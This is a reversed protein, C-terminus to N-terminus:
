AFPARLKALIIFIFLIPGFISLSVSLNIFTGERETLISFARIEMVYIFSPFFIVSLYSKLPPASSLSPLLPTADSLKSAFTPM